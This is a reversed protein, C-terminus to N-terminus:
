TSPNRAETAKKLPIRGHASFIVMFCKLYPIHQFSKKGITIAFLDFYNLQNQVLIKQLTTSRYM